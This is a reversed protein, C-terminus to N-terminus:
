MKPVKNVALPFRLCNFIIAEIPIPKLIRIFKIRIGCKWALPAASALRSVCNEVANTWTSSHMFIKLKFISMRNIIFNIANAITVNVPVQSILADETEQINANSMAISILRNAAIIKRKTFKLIISCITLFSFSDQNQTRLLNYILLKSLLCTHSAPRNM